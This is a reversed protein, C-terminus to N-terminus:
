GACLPTSFTLYPGLMPLHSILCCPDISCRCRSSRSCSPSSRSTRSIREKWVTSVSPSSMVPARLSRRSCMRAFSPRFCRARPHVVGALPLSSSNPSIVAFVRVQEPHPVVPDDVGRKKKNKAGSPVATLLICVCVCARMFRLRGDICCSLQSSQSPVLLATSRLRFLLFCGLPLSSHSQSHNTDEPPTYTVPSASLVVPFQTNPVQNDVQFVHVSGDLQSFACLLCNIPLSTRFIVPM